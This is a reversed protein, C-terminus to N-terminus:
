RCDASTCPPLPAPVLASAAPGNPYQGIISAIRGQLGFAEGDSFDGDAVFAFPLTRYTDVYGALATVGNLSGTKGRLRDELPTDQFRLSLTGSRGAVALLDDIQTAGPKRGQEVAVALAQCTLQNDRSLGSGDLIRVNKMPIGNATLQEAMVATGADTTGPRGSRVALERVMLEATTNDSVKLMEASIERLTPSQVTALDPGSGPAAGRAVSAVQVGRERLLTALAEGAALGPDDVPVREPRYEGYGSNVILAGLTGVQGETKYNARWTPLYRVADYRSDDVFLTGISKVGSAAIGDALGQLPTGVTGRTAPRDDLYARYDPTQLLPDGSGIFWAKDLSGNTPKGAATVRTVYRFDPSLLSLAANATLIKQASAGILAREPQVSTVTGFGPVAVITCSAEVDRLASTVDSALRQTAAAEAVSQPARRPSWLPTAVAAAPEGAEAQDTGPRALVLMAIGGVVLALAVLRRVAAGARQPSAPAPRPPLLDRETAGTVASRGDSQRNTCHGRHM